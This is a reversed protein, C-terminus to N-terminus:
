VTTLLVKMASIESTQASVVSKAMAMAEAASGSSLEQQAMTIAGEHHAIMLTLFLRDFTAGTAKRLDAMQAETMMGGGMDHGAHGGDTEPVAVDWSRLWGSMADIEPQQAAAIRAALAKVAPAAAQRQAMASMEVAQAHHPIMMTAFMVDADNHASAPATSSPATSSPSSATKAAEHDPSHTDDDAGCSSVAGAVLLAAIAALTRSAPRRPALRSM